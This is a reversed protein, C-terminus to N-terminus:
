CPRAEALAGLVEGLFQRQCGPRIVLRWQGPLILELSAAPSQNLPVAPLKDGQTKLEVFAASSAAIEDRRQLERRWFYLATEKLRERRCFPRVGLGSERWRAIMKRWYAERGADRQKRAM